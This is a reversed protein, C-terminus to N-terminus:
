THAHTVLCLVALLEGRGQPALVHFIPAVRARSGDRGTAASLPFASRFCRDRVVAVPASQQEALRQQGHEAKSVQGVAPRLRQLADQQRETWKAM